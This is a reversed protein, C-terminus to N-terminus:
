GVRVPVRVDPTAEQGYRLQRSREQQRLYEESAFQAPTISQASIATACLMLLPVARFSTCSQHSLFNLPHRLRLPKLWHLYDTAKLTQLNPSKTKSLELFSRNKYLNEYILM